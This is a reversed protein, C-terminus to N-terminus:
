DAVARLGSVIAGTRADTDGDNFRNDPAGVTFGIHVRDFRRDAHRDAASPDRGCSDIMTKATRDYAHTVDACGSGDSDPGPCGVWVRTRMHDADPGLGCNSCDDDCQRQIAVRVTRAPGAEGTALFPLPGCAGGACRARNELWAPTGPQWTCAPSTAGDRAPGGKCSPNDGSGNGIFDRSDQRLLAVHNGPIRGAEEGYNNDFIDFEIGLKPLAKHDDRAAPVLTKYGLGVDGDRGHSPGCIVGIDRGHADVALRPDSPPLSGGVVALALGGGTGRAQNADDEGPFFRLNFSLRLTEDTLPFPRTIWACSSHGNPVPAWGAKTRRGFILTTGPAGGPHRRLVAPKVVRAGQSPETGRISDPDVTGAPPAAATDPAAKEGQQTRGPGLAALFTAAPIHVLLDDPRDGGPRCQPTGTTAHYLADADARDNQDATDADMAADCSTSLVTFAAPEPTEDCPRGPCVPIGDEPKAARPNEVFARAARYRIPEGWQDRARGADMGLTKWPLPGIRRDLSDCSEAARGKEAQTAPCPLHGNEQAYEMLRAAAADLREMTPGTSVPGTAAGKEAAAERSEAPETAKEAAKKDTKDGTASAVAGGVALIALAIGLNCIGRSGRRDGSVLGKM